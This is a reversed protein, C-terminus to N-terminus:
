VHVMIMAVVWLSFLASVATNENVNETTSAPQEVKPPFPNSEVNYVEIERLVLAQPFSNGWGSLVAQEAIEDTAFGFTTRHVVM